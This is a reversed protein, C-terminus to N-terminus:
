QSSNLENVIQLLRNYKVVREGRSPAGFKAYDGGLGVAMDAIFTDTTEGSRHSFVTQWEAEKATKVFEVTETITGIQNPKVIVANCSKEKIAKQIRERSTTLLDDGVIMIDKGLQATLKAWNEWDDEALGDEISLIMFDKHIKKYFEIIDDATAAQSLDKIHYKGNQFLFNAAVDLGVFVDQALLYPLQKIAETLIQFADANTYLNPAFGGEIGTSHIAGKEVLVHELSMFIEVGMQLAKKFEKNSAPIIQFEQFDLNGAGHEGGNVVNFIPTPIHLDPTLQYKEKFYKYLPIGYHAAGAKATAQSVALIANAGLKSKNMTGDLQVLIQDIAAQQTPDKGILAPAIVTNINEVAKLVGKGYMRGPDADRMEVAEHKGMSTGSPVATDVVTNDDLVMAAEVTPWGRSDLIEQAVLHQITPM